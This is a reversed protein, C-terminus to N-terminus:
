KVRTHAMLACAERHGTRRTRQRRNSRGLVGEALQLEALGDEVTRWQAQATTSVTLVLQGAHRVLKAPVRILWGRVTDPEERLQHRMTLWLLWVLLNYALLCVQFLASNAWFDQTLMSAAGMQGKCWQIWNESTGRQGSYRHINWPQWDLSTVYCFYEYEVTTWTFLGQHVVTKIPRRVAVFRRPQSWGGCQHRFACAEWGPRNALPQWSQKALVTTMGKFAAKIAYLAQHTDLVDLLKGDCFASDGRAFLRGFRKPLRALCEKLFEAGGNASYVNGCRFWNHLCERTEAVFCLLPHYSRQGKKKPNFGKEAGQQRGFVGKVTSDFDLTIRHFWKRGWVRCRALHEVEALEACHKPSFLRFLRGVTTNVPFRGWEFIRRLLGDHRLLGVHSLHSGGAVVSLLTIVLVDTVSYVANAGREISIHTDCFTTIGLKKILKGVPVLGANGTMPKKAYEIAVEKMVSDRRRLHADKGPESNHYRCLAYDRFIPPNALNKQVFITMNKLLRSVWFTFRM